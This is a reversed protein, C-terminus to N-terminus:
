FDACFISQGTDKEISEFVTNFADDFVKHPRILEYWMVLNGEKIRYRLYAEVEYATGGIFVPIGISFKEPVKIEGKSTAGEIEENYIFQTQGDQLRIGSSFSVKKKAELTRSIELMDAASPSVIDPLNREIFAAFDTQSMGKKDTSLWERWETSKPCTYCAKHEKWGADDTSDDDFVAVFDGSNKNAYINSQDTKHMSFYRVFSDVTQLSKTGKKRLPPDITEDIYEIHQCGDNDMLIVFPKFNGNVQQYNQTQMALDRVIEAETRAEM